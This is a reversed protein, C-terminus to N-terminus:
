RQHILYQHPLGFFLKHYSQPKHPLYSAPQTNSITSTYPFIHEFFVLDRYIFVQKCQLYFIIDGKVGYKHGIYICKRSRSDFKSKNHKSSAVFVLCGFVKIASYDSHKQHMIYYPSKNQLLKSPLRNILFVDHSLAYAWFPKSLKSQFILARDVGLLHQHKREVIDNQQLTDVCSTQHHIGQKMLFFNLGTNTRIMKVNKSFQTKIFAVFYKVLYAIEYKAHM